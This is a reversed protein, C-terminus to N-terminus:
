ELASAMGAALSLCSFSVFNFVMPGVARLLKM